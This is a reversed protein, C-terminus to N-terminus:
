LTKSSILLRSVPRLSVCCISLRLSFDVSFIPPTVNFNFGKFQMIESSFHILKVTSGYGLLFLISSFFDFFKSSRRFFLRVPESRSRAISAAHSPRTKMLSVSEAMSGTKIEFLSAAVASSAIKAKASRCEELITSREASANKERRIRSRSHCPLLSFAATRRNRIRLSRKYVFRVPRRCYLNPPVLIVISTIPTSSTPLIAPIVVSATSVYFTGADVAPM